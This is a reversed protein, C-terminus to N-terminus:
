RKPARQKWSKSGGESTAVGLGDVCSAGGELNGNWSLTSNECDNAVDSGLFASNGIAKQDIQLAQPLDDSPCEQM